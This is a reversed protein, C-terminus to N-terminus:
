ETKRVGASLRRPYLPYASTLEEVQRRVQRLVAQDGPSELVQAIWNAILQMEAVKMGRTTVAPTGIRIGSTVLPSNRDFPITNKNVTIGAEELAEEALRGTLGRVGVDVLCLHNDTGGSVIRFGAQALTSSLAKANALVQEQYRKFGPQLAEGFCVAKAAIVHEHPGGQTGPFVWRNLAKRHKRRTMVFGSRPGRLTKHTTSTVFDAHPVPSPHLDVAVLGAIHAMDAMLYAGVQRAIQGFREFDIRRSYASAGAVIMKPATREALRELERYDIREDDRRVGYTEVEFFQGSLNLRHGHTLHGGCFLDMGLIKDGPDLVTLYAAINAQTGSHPQVNVHQAGFLQKARRVALREVVDIYECGGYYRRGPYGEAYKNSLVSGTAQLVAETAFNESAILELSQNQRITEQGIAKAVEPDTRWIAEM